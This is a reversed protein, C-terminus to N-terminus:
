YLEVRSTTSCVVPLNQWTIIVQDWTGCTKSELLLSTLAKVSRALLLNSEDTWEGIHDSTLYPKPRLIKTSSTSLCRWLKPDSCGTWYKPSGLDLLTSLRSGFTTWRRTDCLISTNRSWERQARPSVAGPCCAFAQPCHWVAPHSLPQSASVTHAFSVIAATPTIVPDLNTWLM